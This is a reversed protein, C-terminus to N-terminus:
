PSLRGLYIEPRDLIGTIWAGVIEGGVARLAYDSVYGRSSAVVYPTGLTHGSQDLSRATVRIAEAAPSQLPGPSGTLLITHDGSVAAATRYALPETDITTPGARVSGDAGVDTWQLSFSTNSGVWSFLHAHDAYPALSVYQVQTDAAFMTVTGVAGSSQVRVISIAPPSTGAFTLSAVLYGGGVYAVARDNAYPSANSISPMLTVPQTIRSGDEGVIAGRLIAAPQGTAEMWTLLASGDPNSVILPAEAAGQSTTPDPNSITSQGRLQGETDFALVTVGTGSMYAYMWAKPSGTFSYGGAISVPFPGTQAILTRDPRFRAIYLDSSAAGQARADLYALALEQGNDALSLAAAKATLCASECSLLSSGLPGCTRCDNEDFACASCSLKGGTYGRSECTEGGLDTGDCPETSPNCFVGGPMGVTQGCFSCGDRVGNDCSPTTTCSSFPPPRPPLVLACEGSAGSDPPPPQAGDPSGSAARAVGSDSRMQKIVGADPGGGADTSGGDGTSSQHQVSSQGGSGSAAHNGASSCSCATLVLLAHGLDIAKM